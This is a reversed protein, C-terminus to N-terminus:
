MTGHFAGPSEASGGSTAMVKKGRSLHTKNAVVDYRGFIAYRDPLKVGAAGIAEEGRADRGAFGDANEIANHTLKGPIVSVPMCICAGPPM